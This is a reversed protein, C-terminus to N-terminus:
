VCSLEGVQADGTETGSYRLGDSVADSESEGVEMGGRGEGRRGFKWRWDSAAALIEKLTASPQKRSAMKHWWPERRRGEGEYGTEKDCVELIPCLAVLEAVTAQRKDIYAGLSKTGAVM